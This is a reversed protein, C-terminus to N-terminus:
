IPVKVECHVYFVMFWQGNFMNTVIELNWVYWARNVVVIVSMAIQHSAPIVTYCHTENTTLCHKKRLQNVTLNPQFHCLDQKLWRSKNKKAGQWDHFTLIIMQEISGLEIVNVAFRASENGVKYLAADVVVVVVIVFDSHCEISAHHRGSCRGDCHDCHTVLQELAM